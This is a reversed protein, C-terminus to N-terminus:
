RRVEPRRQPEPRPGGPVPATARPNATTRVAGKRILKLQQEDFSEQGHLKGDAGVGRPQLSLRRCGHLWRTEAVVVGKFNTVTDKAIDGLEIKEETM